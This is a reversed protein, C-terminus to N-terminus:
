GRFVAGAFHGGGMMLVVWCTSPGLSELSATLNAPEESGGQSLSVGALVWLIVKNGRATGQSLSWGRQQCWFCTERLVRSGFFLGGALRPLQGPILSWVEWWPIHPVTLCVDGCWHRRQPREGLLNSQSAKGIGLVCRYASILQGKANRLLVKHSRPVLPTIPSNSTSPLLESESSADSSESDSGSISSIDGALSLFRLLAFMLWCSGWFKAPPELPWSM